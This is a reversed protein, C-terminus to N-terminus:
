GGAPLVEPEPPAHLLRAARVRWGPRGALAAAARAATAPDPYLGFCTAGSGSMRALLCGRTGELAGLVDGIEPVLARAPGELDNRREALAAALAAADAPADALRAPGSFPGTRARFVPPTPCPLGPNALVAWVPPLAPAPEIQEGIGGMHCPRCALCAPVDAGLAPAAAAPAPHGDPLGWLRALARLVAAADASGGGVGAAVPLRKDLRISVAPPRGLAGALARAARLALNDPEDALAAAAPGTVEIAPGEPDPRVEVLDADDAFAVLSDLLHYGDPRRGVVHLYLNLKAPAAVRVAAPASV